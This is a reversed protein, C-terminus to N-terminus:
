TEGKVANKMVEDLLVELAFTREGLAVACKLVDDFKMNYNAIYARCGKQLASKYDGGFGELAYQRVMLQKARSEKSSVLAKGRKEAAKNMDDIDSIIDGLLRCGGHRFDMLLESYEMFETPMMWVLLFHEREERSLLHWREECIAERMQEIREASYEIFIHYLADANYDKEQGRAFLIREIDGRRPFSAKEELRSVSIRRIMEKYDAILEKVRDMVDPNLKDQWNKKQAFTFLEGDSAPVVSIKPTNKKLMYALYPLKEVNSSVSEWETQKYFESLKQGQTKEYWRRPADDSLLGKYKLLLNRQRATHGIYESLDPKVGSKVSDIELGTLIALIETDKRCQEREEATSNEDYAIISRDLAANCIQGVRSSFTTRVTEFRAYWDGADKIQAGASPIKLLPINNKYHFPDLDGKAYNRSVCENLLPDAITKVMDGDFDAGGLREPILTRSDVMVVYSLHSLYKKRFYGINELPRVVAEENRAIHPNRLLTYMYAQPYVAQPAYFVTNNDCERELRAVAGLYSSDKDAVTSVMKQVFRMLDGSLYRNDGSVILRGISYQELVKDGLEQLENAFTAENIFKSNKKLLKALRARRSNKDVDADDLVSTFYELRTKPNAVYNYYATETAKTIWHRSECEPSTKWGYPLYQPRFDEARLPLTNIFQYNLETYASPNVQNVGSIYLAHRYKRCRKLYESWSIQNETLWGYAKFMSKTLIVDVESIPHKEGWLDIIYPVGLERLMSKFDVEHLMGKVYPMRVQFSSHIHEGCYAKDIKSALQRSILGEGDFEMVTIDSQKEVRSYKRVSNGSGDDEVTVISAERVTSEPNDIVVVRRSDWIEVDDIRKGTTFMLGNYAYLKSLQCLGIKMDLTIRRRLPEYLDERVFCIKSERSMSASREFALYKYRKEIQLTIGVPRFMSEAKKQVEIMRPTHAARDFIGSFDLYILADHLEECVPDKCDEKYENNTLIQMAQYFVPTSDQYTNGGAKIVRLTEELNLEFSYIGNGTTKAYPLLDWASIQPIKYKKLKM